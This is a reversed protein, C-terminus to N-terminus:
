EWSGRAVHMEPLWLSYWAASYVMKGLLGSTGANELENSLEVM